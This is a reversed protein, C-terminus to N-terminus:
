DTSSVASANSAFKKLVHVTVEYQYTSNVLVTDYVIYLFVFSDSTDRLKFFKNIADVM